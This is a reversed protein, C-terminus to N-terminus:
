KSALLRDIILKPEQKGLLILEINKGDNTTIVLRGSYPVRGMGWKKPYYKVSKIDDKLIRFNANDKSLFTESELDIAEYQKEMRKSVYYEPNQWATLDVDYHPTAIANGVHSGFIYKDTVWIRFTRNLILAYYCMAVFSWSGNGEIKIHSIVASFAEQDDRSGPPSFFRKMIFTFSVGFIIWFVLQKM